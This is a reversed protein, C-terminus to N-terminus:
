VLKHYHWLLSLSCSFPSVQGTQHTWSFGVLEDRSVMKICKKKKKRFHSLIQDCIRVSTTCGKGEGVKCWIDLEEVLTRAHLVRLGAFIHHLSPFISHRKLAWQLSNSLPQQVVM